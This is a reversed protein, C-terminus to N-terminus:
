LHRKLQNCCSITYVCVFYSVVFGDARVCEYHIQNPISHPTNATMRNCHTAVISRLLCCFLCKFLFFIYTLIYISYLLLMLLSAFSSFFFEACVRWGCDSRVCEVNDNFHIRKVNSKKWQKGDFTKKKMKQPQLTRQQQQLRLRARYQKM